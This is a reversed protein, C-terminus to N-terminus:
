RSAGIAADLAEGAIRATEAWSALEAGFAAAAQAMAERRWAESLLVRLAGAFAVPDDRAVLIGAEPPVTDPVAGTRCSVIPLGHM